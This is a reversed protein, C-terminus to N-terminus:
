RPSDEHTALRRGARTSWHEGLAEVLAQITARAPMVDVRLGSQTVSAATVPGIAAVVVRAMWRALEARSVGAQDLASLFGTVTSGSTFTIADVEGDRLMEALVAGDRANPLTQYVGAEDVQWGAAKLTDALERSATAARLLLARRPVDTSAVLAQGLNSTDYTGPLLDARLGFRGLADGTGPGVAAIRPGALARVDRGTELLRNVVFEVGNASTFVLWDYRGVVALRNDLPGWDAPPVIEITPFPWAEGGRAEIAREMAGAQRTARTVVVRCGFLPLKEVWALEARLSVVEGVVLLGPPVLGEAKAIAAINDVTGAVARQRATTGWQIVAAPTSGPWEAARLRECIEPLTEMGMFFVATDVSGAAPVPIDREGARRHGTFFGVSSAIGRHTVPIGAYGPVAAGASVGPVVVFPIGAAALALAEEGGRGFVFPDGGKLRVVVGGQRAKSVLLQNIEEQELTHRSASKGANILEAGPRCYRLLGPNALHDYVVVDAEQLLERGKVTILGPEGPGAGVLYVTGVAPM